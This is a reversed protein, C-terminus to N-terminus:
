RQPKTYPVFPGLSVFGRPFHSLSDILEVPEPTCLEGSVTRTLLIDASRLSEAGSRPRNVLLRGGPMEYVIAVGDIVQSSRVDRLRICNLPAGATRGELRKALRAEGAPQAVASSAAALAAVVVVGCLMSRM